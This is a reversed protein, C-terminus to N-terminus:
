GAKQSVAQKAVTFTYSDFVNIQFRVAAVQQDLGAAGGVSCGRNPSSCRCFSPCKRSSNGTSSPRGSGELLGTSERISCEWQSLLDTGQGTM